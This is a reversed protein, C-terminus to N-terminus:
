NVKPKHEQYYKNFDILKPDLKLCGKCLECTTITYPGTGPFTSVTHMLTNVLIVSYIINQAEKPYYEEQEAM